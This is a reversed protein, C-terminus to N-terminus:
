HSAPAFLRNFLALFPQFRPRLIAGDVVELNGARNRTHLKRGPWYIDPALTGVVDQRYEAESLHTIEVLAIEAGYHHSCDQVPRYLRGEREYFNGAPRATAANILVPNQAHPHWPGYIHDAYFVSLCDSYGNNGDRTVCFLWLKGDRRTITVDAADIDSLLVAKRKWGFPFNSAQYIAVDRNNSTEPIMLIEGGEEWLFPYSLHYEEKLCVQAEGKPGNEDFEIVSIVGKHRNKDLDEFFLFQRGQWQCAVPDAYSHNNKDPLVTWGQGALTGRTTSDENDVWRWGIRWHNPRFLRSYIAMMANHVVLGSIARTLEFLGPWDAQKVILEEAWREQHNLWGRLLTVVRALTQDMAGPLGIALEGSPLATAAISGDKRMLAIQPLGDRIIASILAKEAPYGNFLLTLEETGSPAKGDGVLDIVLDFIGHGARDCIVEDPLHGIWSDKDFLDGGIEKGKLFLAKEVEYHRRIREPVPYGQSFALVVPENRELLIMDLLAWQWRRCNAPDLYLCISM